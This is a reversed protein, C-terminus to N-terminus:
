FTVIKSIIAEKIHHRTTNYILLLMESSFAVEMYEEAQYIRVDTFILVVNKQSIVWHLKTYRSAILKESFM